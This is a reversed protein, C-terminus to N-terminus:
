SFWLYNQLFKYPLQNVTGNNDDYHELKNYAYSIFQLTNDEWALSPIM